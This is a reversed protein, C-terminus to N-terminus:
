LEFLGSIEATQSLKDYACVLMHGTTTGAAVGIMIAYGNSDSGYPDVFINNVTLVGVAEALCSQEVDQQFELWADGSAAQAATAVALGAIFACALVAASRHLLRLAFTM